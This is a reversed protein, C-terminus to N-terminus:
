ALHLFLFRAGPQLTKNLLALGIDVFKFYRLLVALIQASHGSLTVALEGVSALFPSRAGQCLLM